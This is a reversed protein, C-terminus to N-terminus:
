SSWSKAPVQISQHLARAAYSITECSRCTTTVERAPSAVQCSFTKSMNLATTAYKCFFEKATGIAKCSEMFYQHSRLYLPDHKQACLGLFYTILATLQLTSQQMAIEVPKPTQRVHLELPLEALATMAGLVLRKQPFMTVHFSLSLIPGDRLLCIYHLASLSYLPLGHVIISELNLM